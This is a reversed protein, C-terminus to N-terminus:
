YIILTTGNVKVSKIKKEDIWRDITARSYGFKKSFESKTWLRKTDIVVSDM